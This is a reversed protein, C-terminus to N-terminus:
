IRTAQLTLQFPFQEDDLYSVSTGVSLSFYAVRSVLSKHDYAIEHGHSDREM